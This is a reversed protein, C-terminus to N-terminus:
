FPPEELQAPQSWVDVPESQKPAGSLNAPEKAYRLDLGVSTVQVELSFRTEGTKTQYERQYARGTVIVADGKRLAECVKEATKEWVSCNWGTVDLNEWGSDTKKSRSTIIRFTGIATGQPTFRLEADATLRGHLVIDTTSLGSGGM